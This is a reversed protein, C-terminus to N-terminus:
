RYRSWWFRDVWDYTISSPRFIPWKRSFQPHSTQPKTWFFFTHPFRLSLCWTNLPPPGWNLHARSKFIPSGKDGASGGLPWHTCKKWFNMDWGRYPTPYVYMYRDVRRSMLKGVFYIKGVIPGRLPPIYGFFQFISKQFNWKKWFKRFDRWGIRM